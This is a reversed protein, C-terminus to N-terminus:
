LQMEVADGVDIGAFVRGNRDQAKKTEVVVIDDLLGIM